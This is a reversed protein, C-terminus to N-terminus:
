IVIRLELYNKLFLNKFAFIQFDVNSFRFLNNLGFKTDIIGLNITSRKQTFGAQEPRKTLILHNRIRNLLLHAFVKGPVNLLIIGRYNNCDMSDGRGKNIAMEIYRM